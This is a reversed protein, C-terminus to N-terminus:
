RTDPTSSLMTLALGYMLGLIFLPYYGTLGAVGPLHSGFPFMPLLFLAWGSRSVSLTRTIVIWSPVLVLIYSYNNFNPHLLGYTLCFLTILLVRGERNETVKLRIMTRLSVIAMLSASVAWLLLAPRKAADLGPVVGSMRVLDRVFLFFAPNYENGSGQPIPLNTVFGTLLDPRLIASLCIILIFSLSFAAFYYWKKPYDTFLILLLFAAPVLKFCAAAIVFIGFRLYKGLLFFFLGGWLLSQEVACINGVKLDEFVPSNFAFIVYLVFLGAHQKGDLFHRLWLVILGIYLVTKVVLFAAAAVTFDFLTFPIFVFLTFWPYVYNFLVGGGALDNLTAMDYPNRGSALAKAAHYYITFDWQCTSMNLFIYMLLGGAIGLAAGSIVKDTKQKNLMKM